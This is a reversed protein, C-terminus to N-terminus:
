DKGNLIDNIKGHRIESLFIEDILIKFKENNEYDFKFDEFASESMKLLSYAGNSFRNMSMKYELYSIYKNYLVHKCIM